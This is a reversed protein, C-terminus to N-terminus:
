RADELAMAAGRAGTMIAAANTNGCIVAPFVSADIVRLGEFGHVRLRPDVASQAPESGMRCTGVPHYVTGCRARMDAVLADDGAVAPGPALEEAIVARLAPRTALRRLLKVGELIDRVDRPDSLGCPTIRPADFPDASRAMVFGRAAPACSSLGLSFGPFPDPAMLPREGMRATLTTVTQLYLQINPRDLGARTRAFGGGQNLSLSLPGRRRALYDLGALAKGWWPRLTQNMSPIRARYTYNLGLHDQLHGGV